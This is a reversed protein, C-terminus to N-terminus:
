CIGVKKEGPLKMALTVSKVELLMNTVESTHLLDVVLKPDSADNNTKLQDIVSNTDDSKKNWTLQFDIRSNEEAAINKHKGKMGNDSKLKVKVERQITDFNVCEEILSFIFSLQFSNYYCCITSLAFLCM